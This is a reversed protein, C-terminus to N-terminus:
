SHWAMKIRDAWSNTQMAKTMGRIALVQSCHQLALVALACAACMCMIVAVPVFTVRYADEEAPFHRVMTLRVTSSGPHYRRACASLLYENCLELPLFPTVM